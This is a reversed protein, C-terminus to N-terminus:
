NARFRVRMVKRDYEAERALTIEEGGSGYVRGGAARCQNREYQCPGMEPHRRCLDHVKPAFGIVTQEVAGARDLVCVYIADAPLTIVAAPARAPPPPV